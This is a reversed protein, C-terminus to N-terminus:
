EIWGQILKFTDDLTKRRQELYSEIERSRWDIKFEERGHSDLVRSGKDKYGRRFVLSKPRRPLKKYYNRHNKYKQIFWILTGFFDETTRGYINLHLIAAKWYYRNLLQKLIISKEDNKYYREVWETLEFQLYERYEESVYHSAM